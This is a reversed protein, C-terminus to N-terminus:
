GFLATRLFNANTHLGMYLFEIGNTEKVYCMRNAAHAAGTAVLYETAKPILTGDGIDLEHIRLTVNHQIFIKDTDKNRCISMTGTTFTETLPYFTLATWSNGAISYYDITATNAGRIRYIRDTNVGPMWCLYCGAGCASPQVTLNNVWANGAIDYRYSVTSANGILYIYDDNGAVNYTSCTHTMNCETGMTAGLNVVSRATWTNAACDYYQFTPAGTGSSLHLWVYGASGRSPDFIMNTAAGFTGGPPSALQQYTNTYTCYRWFSTASLLVYIFRNSGREDNCTCAGAATAAPFPQLVEWSPLDIVLTNNNTIAM